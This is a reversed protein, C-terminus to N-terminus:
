RYQLVIWKRVSSKPMETGAKACTCCTPEPGFHKCNLNGKCHDLCSGATYNQALCTGSTNAYKVCTKDVHDLEYAKLTGSVLYLFMLLGFGWKQVIKRDMCRLLAIGIAYGPFTLVTSFVMHATFELLQTGTATASSAKKGRLHTEISTNNNAVGIADGVVGAQEVETTTSTMTKAAAVAAGLLRIAGNKMQSTFSHENPVPVLHTTIIQINDANIDATFSAFSEGGYYFADFLVWCIAAGVHVASLLLPLPIFGLHISHFVLKMCTFSCMGYYWFFFFSLPDIFNAHSHVNMEYM